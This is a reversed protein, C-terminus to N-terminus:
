LQIRYFHGRILKYQCTLFYERQISKLIFQTPNERLLKGKLSNTILNDSTDQQQNSIVKLIETGPCGVQLIVPPLSAKHGSFVVVHLAGAPM